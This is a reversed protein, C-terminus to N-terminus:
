FSGEFAVIARCKTESLLVRAGGNKDSLLLAPGDVAETLLVRAKGNEDRLSLTPCCATVELKGRERGEDDVLVFKKATIVTGTAIREIEFELKALREEITM